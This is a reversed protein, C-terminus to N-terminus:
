PPRTCIAKDRSKKSELSFPGISFFISYNPIVLWIDM